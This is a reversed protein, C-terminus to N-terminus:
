FSVPLTAKTVAAPLPDSPRARLREGLGPRRDDGAIDVLAQQSCEVAYLANPRELEVDEIIRGDLCRSALDADDVNQEVAGAEDM